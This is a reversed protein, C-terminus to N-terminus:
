QVADVFILVDRVHHGTHREFLRGRVTVKEWHKLAIKRLTVESATMQIQTVRDFNDPNIDDSNGGVVDMPALLNLIYATEHADTEPSEGYNPPGFHDEFTVVGSLAVPTEYAYSYIPGKEDLTWTVAAVAILSRWM